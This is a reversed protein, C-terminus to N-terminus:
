LHMWERIKQKIRELANDVTTHDVWLLYSIQRASLQQGQYEYERFLYWLLDYVKKEEWEKYYREMTIVGQIQYSVITGFFAQRESLKWIKFLKRVNLGILM